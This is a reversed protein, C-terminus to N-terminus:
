KNLNKEFEMKKVEEIPLGAIEVIEEVPMSRSMLNKAAEKRVEELGIEYGADFKDQLRLLTQM